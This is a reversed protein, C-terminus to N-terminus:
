PYISYLRKIKEDLKLREFAALDSWVDLNIVGM